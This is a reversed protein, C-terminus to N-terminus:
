NLLQLEKQVRKRIVTLTDDLILEGNLFVVSLEGAAEEEYSVQDKLVYTITEPKLTIQNLTVHKLVQLLGKASKKTGDDTIPDKFIEIDLRQGDSGLVVGATAKMAWGDTDRTVYQYTFSGIGAVWNTSAFQKQMLRECMRTARDINISDGYICGVHSDLEKYGAYNTTGGFVDWLLEVVGKNVPTIPAIGMRENMSHLYDGCIIDVPDGSDPRIVVKGDRALIEKKLAPLYETLVTWLNFTDSVISIIGSPYVETILRKFVSFEAEGVKSWDGGLKDYVYLGTGFCMVSHETAAVSCGVLERDSDANYYEELFDIAPITDTGVFSLLHAAGSMKAAELGFMGRFSFDHGQFPVFELSGGSEKAFKNLLKRYEFATTASTCPGWITASFITELYGVLWVFEDLTNVMTVPPVGINVRTGEPLAKIKLPMYGLDHLAEIHEFTVGHGEGLYNNIRRVYQKVAVDKPLLFFTNNFDEILYKKIFYQLGFFVIKSVGERRTKRPTFNNFQRLAGKPMQRRHDAKYGDTLNIANNM